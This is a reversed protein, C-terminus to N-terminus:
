FVYLQTAYTSLHLQQNTRIIFLVFIDVFIAADLLLGTLLGHSAGWGLVASYGPGPRVGTVKLKKRDGARDIQLDTFLPFVPITQM